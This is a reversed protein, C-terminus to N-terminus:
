LAYKKYLFCQNLFNPIDHLCNLLIIWVRGLDECQKDSFYIIVRFLIILNITM